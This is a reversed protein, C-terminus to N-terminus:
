AGQFEHVFIWAVPVLSVAVGLAAYIDHRDGTVASAIMVVGVLLACGWCFVATCSVIQRPRGGHGPKWVHFYYRASLAFVIIRVFGIGLSDAHEGCCFDYVGHALVVGAYVTLFEGTRHCKGRLWDFLAVGLLGTLAMHFFNATVMRGLANIAGERM